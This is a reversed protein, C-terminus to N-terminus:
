IGGGGDGPDSNWCACHDIAWRGIRVYLSTDRVGLVEAVQRATSGRRFAGLAEVVEADTIKHSRKARTSGGLQSLKHLTESM